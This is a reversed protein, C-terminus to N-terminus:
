IDLAEKIQVKAFSITTILITDGKNKGRLNWSLFLAKKRYILCDETCWSSGTNGPM